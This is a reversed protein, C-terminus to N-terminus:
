YRKCTAVATSSLIIIIIDIEGSKYVRIVFAVFLDAHLIDLSHSVLYLSWGLNANLYGISYVIYLHSLLCHCSALAIIRTFELYLQM